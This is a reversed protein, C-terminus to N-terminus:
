PGPAEGIDQGRMRLGRPVTLGSGPWGADHLCTRRARETTVVTQRLLGKGCCLCCDTQPSPGTFMLMVLRSSPIVDTRNFFIGTATENRM